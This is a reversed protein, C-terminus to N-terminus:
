IPGPITNLLLYAIAAIVAIGFPLLSHTAGRTRAQDGYHWTPLTPVALMALAPLTALIAPGIPTDPVSDAPYGLAGLLYETAIHALLLCPPLLLLSLWAKRTTSEADSSTM